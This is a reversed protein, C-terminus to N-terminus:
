ESLDYGCLFFLRDSEGHLYIFKLGGLVSLEPLDRQYMSNLLPKLCVTVDHRPENPIVPISPIKVGTPKLNM